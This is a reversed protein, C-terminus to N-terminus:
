PTTPVEAGVAEFQFDDFELLGSGALWAGFAINVADAPVDLVIDYRTWDTTGTIPREQMNSIALMSDPGDLRLLVGSGASVANTRVYASMRLRQGLYQDAAFRQLLAGYGAAAETTARIYGSATGSHANDTATGITYDQPRDSFLAWHATGDEFGLNVPQSPYTPEIGTDWGSPQGLLHSPSTDEFYIIVDFVKPLAMAQFSAEPNAASYAAGIHRLLYPGFLWETAPTDPQIGRLDLLFRALGASHFYHEYSNDPPPGVQHVALGGFQDPGKMTLANFSGSYFTLGFSVLADGYQKRLWAGMSDRATPNVGVHVNHAWVVMRAGPGAEDLLWSINEAMYRDRAASNGVGISFVDEFQQVVRASHLAQAFEVPSTSATYDTQHQSLLDYVAQLDNRCQARVEQSLEAYAQTAAQYPRICGFLADAREAAAQDVGALYKVVRRLAMGPSQMDFGSFTVAPAEGRAENYTQMWQILDLVEQTNWTWFGLGALLQAPDGQGTQVYNDVLSAEPWSAELAFATFGMEKVLFELIRHKMQFFEHTGHTAEGLAVIRADGVIKKLPMLDTMDTGPETTTFPIANELLWNRIEPVITTGQSVLANSFPTSQVQDPTPTGLGPSSAVCATLVLLSILALAMDWKRRMWSRVRIRLHTVNPPIALEGGKKQMGGAISRAAYGLANLLARLPRSPIDEEAVRTDFAAV